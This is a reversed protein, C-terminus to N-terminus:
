QLLVVALFVRMNAQFKMDVLEPFCDFQLVDVIHACCLQVSYFDNSIHM